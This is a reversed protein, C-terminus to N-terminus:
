LKKSKLSNLMLAVIIPLPFGVLFGFLCLTFTNVFIEKFNPTSFFQKFNDFGVWIANPSFINDGPIFDQFAIVIGYMPIYCFIIIYILTPIIFLLVWKRRKFNMKWKEKKSIDKNVVEYTDLNIEENTVSTDLEKEDSM